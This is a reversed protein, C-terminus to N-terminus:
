TSVSLFMRKTSMLKRGCLYAIGVSIDRWCMYIRVHMHLACVIIFILYMGNIRNGFLMEDNTEVYVISTGTEWSLQLVEGRRNYMNAASM